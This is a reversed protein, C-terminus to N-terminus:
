VFVANLVIECYSACLHHFIVQVEHIVLVSMNCLFFHCVFSRRINQHRYLVAWTLSLRQYQAVLVLDVRNLM